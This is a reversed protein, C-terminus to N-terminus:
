CVEAIIEADGGEFRYPSDGVEKEEAPDLLESLTPPTGIIHRRDQLDTVARMLGEELETIQPAKSPRAPIRITLRQQPAAPAIKKVANIAAVVDGKANLVADLAPTWESAIYHKGLADQLRTQAEPLSSSWFLAELSVPRSVIGGDGAADCDVVV